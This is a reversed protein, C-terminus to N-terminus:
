AIRYGRRAVDPKCYLTVGNRSQSPNDRLRYTETDCGFPVFDSALALEEQLCNTVMKGLAIRRYPFRYTMAALEYESGRPYFFPEYDQIFYLRSMPTVGRSALVHATEWSTAICADINSLGTASDRIEGTIHPWFARIRESREDVDVGHRDYLFIVCTHGAEQLGEVMRFITTHGGSGAAPPSILWGIRLPRGVDTIRVAEPLAIRDDVQMDQAGLQFGPNEAGSRTYARRAARQLLGSPGASRARALNSRARVLHRHV